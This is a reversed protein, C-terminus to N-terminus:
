TPASSHASSPKYSATSIHWIHSRNGRRTFQLNSQEEILRQVVLALSMFNMLAEAKESVWGQRFLL